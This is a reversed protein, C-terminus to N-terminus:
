FVVLREDTDLIDSKREGVVLDMKQFQKETVALIQVLGETPHNKHIFGQITEVVNSNQAMKCYVSEQLMMFGNKILTRRFKSYERRQEMTKVPLDFFVLVRM